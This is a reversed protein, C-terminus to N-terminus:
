PHTTGPLPTAKSPSASRPSRTQCPAAQHERSAGRRCHRTHGVATDRRRAHSLLYERDQRHIEAQGNAYGIRSGRGASRPSCQVHPQAPRSRPRLHLNKAKHCGRWAFAGNPPSSSRFSRLYEKVGSSACRSTPWANSSFWHLTPNRCGRKPPSASAGRCCCIRAPNNSSSRQNQMPDANPVRLIPDSSNGALDSTLRM